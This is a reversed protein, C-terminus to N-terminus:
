RGRPGEGALPLVEVGTGPPQIRVEGEDDERGLVSIDVRLFRKIVDATTLLHKTITSATYRTVPVIGPPSPVLSAALLAAPLLLQDALYRDVAAGGKLFAALDSVVADATRDPQGEGIAGFGARTREFAAVALLHSGSSRRAPVPVRTADAAIGIDRLKRLAREALREAVAFALGGVMAVVEVQELTGRHRLDLPPMAHAPEVTATLEGGGEPYFGAEQLALDFRFGLRAVAPAWVLALDHFTPSYRQHTGGRLTLQSTGGALALPWCLTQFLLPASGATGIDFLYTGPAARTRPAFQVRDSGVDAGEVEAACLRAMALVAERHQPRLGPKIRQARVRHISFGKGSIASLALATRLIQGGGEGASGDLVIPIDGPM